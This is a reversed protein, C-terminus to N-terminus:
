TPAWVEGQDTCVATSPDDLRLSRKSGKIGRRCGSEDGRPPARSNPIDSARYVMEMDAYGFSENATLSDGWLSQHIGQSFHQGYESTYQCGEQGQCIGSDGSLSSTVRSLQHADKTRQNVVSGGNEIRPRELNSGLGPSIYRVRDGPQTSGSTFSCWQSEANRIDV